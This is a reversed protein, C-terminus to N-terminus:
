AVAIQLLSEGYPIKKLAECWARNACRAIFRARLWVRVCGAGKLCWILNNM